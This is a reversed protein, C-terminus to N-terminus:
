FLKIRYGIARQIIREFRENQDHVYEWKTIIPISVVLPVTSEDVKRQLNRSLEELYTEDILIVGMQDNSLEEALRRQGDERSSAEHVDVGALTFGIGQGAPIIATVKFM